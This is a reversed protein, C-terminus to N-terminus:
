QFIQLVNDAVEIQVYAVSTDYFDGSVHPSLLKWPIVCRLLMQLLLKFSRMILFVIIGDVEKEWRSDHEPFPM